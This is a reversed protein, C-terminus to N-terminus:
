YPKPVTAKKYGYQNGTELSNIQMHHQLRKAVVREILKSVFQLHSVPRFNGHLQHDLGLEKLLPTIEAEKLIGDISGTSLSLNVLHTWLPLFIDM